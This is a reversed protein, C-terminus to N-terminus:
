EVPLGVVNLIEHIEEDLTFQKPRENAKYGSHAIVIIQVSM